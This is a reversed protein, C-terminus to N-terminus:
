LPRAEEPLFGLGLYDRGRLARMRQISLARRAWQARFFFREYICAIHACVFAEPPLCTLGSVYEFGKNTVFCM